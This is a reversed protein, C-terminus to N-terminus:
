LLREPGQPHPHPHLHPCPLRFQDSRIASAGGFLMKYPLRYKFKDVAVSLHRPQAACTYLNRDDEPLLDVDHFVACTWDSDRMAEVFGVNLLMARNFTNKDAQNVVYIRYHLQQRQLFPHLHRLLLALHQLRRRYPIVLAVRHRARCGAPRHEGGRTVGPNERLITAWEAVERVVGVRGQLGPPVAPCEPAPAETDAEAVAATTNSPAPPPTSALGPSRPPPQRPAPAGEPRRTAEVGREQGAEALKNGTTDASSNTGSTINPSHFGDAALVGEVQRVQAVM